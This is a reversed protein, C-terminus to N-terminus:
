HEGSLYEPDFQFVNFKPEYRPSKVTLDRKTAERIRQVLEVKASSRFLGRNAYAVAGILLDCLQMPASEHSRIQQIRPVVKHDFDKLKNCLVEQLMKVKVISRTDKIDLYIHYSHENALITQMALYFMKYYFTDHSGANFDEHRLRTKNTVVVCRFSLTKDCFFYEIIDRYMGVKAPSVKTWKIEGSFGHRSKIEKIERSVRRVESRPLWICGLVMKDSKDHELHCSEDCYVNYKM